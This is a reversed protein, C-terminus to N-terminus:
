VGIEYGCANCYRGPRVNSHCYKCVVKLPTGCQSCYCDDRVTSGCVHCSTPNAPRANPPGIGFLWNLIGFGRTGFGSPWESGLELSQRRAQEMPKSLFADIAILAPAYILGFEIDQGMEDYDDEDSM